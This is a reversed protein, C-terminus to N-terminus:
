ANSDKVVSDFSLLLENGRDQATAVPHFLHALNTMRGNVSIEYNGSIPHWQQSAWCHRIQFCQQALWCHCGGIM